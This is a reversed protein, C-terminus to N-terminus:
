GQLVAIVAECQSGLNRSNLEMSSSLIVLVVEINRNTWNWNRNRNKNRDRDWTRVYCEQTERATCM